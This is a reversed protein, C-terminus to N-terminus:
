PRPEEPQTLDTLTVPEDCHPCHGGPGLRRCFLNCDPCRRDDLYRTACAPCEYVTSQHPTITTTTEPPSAQRRRWATQRCAGSCYRRRGSAPFQSGCTPCIMTVNITVCPTNM